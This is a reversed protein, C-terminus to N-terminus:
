WPNAWRLHELCETRRSSGYAPVMTLIDGGDRLSVMHDQWMRPQGQVRSTINKHKHILVCPFGNSCTNGVWYDMVHKMLYLEVM